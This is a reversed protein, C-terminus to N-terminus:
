PQSALPDDDPEDELYQFVQVRCNYTDAVWIRNKSDICLGAPLWFEGERVGESGFAMLVQGAADFVQVNEFRADVVYVHGAQDVAVGKPLALNGPGDGPSGIVGLRNGELDLRVVRASLSDSVLLGVGKDYALHTPSGLMLGPPGFVAAQHGQADYVHISRDALDSVYLRGTQEVYVLGAPRGLPDRDFRQVGTGPSWSYIAGAAADAIFLRGGGWCVASPLELTDARLLEYRRRPIDFRHVARADSDLVFVVDGEGVAVGVPAVLRNAAEQGVLRQWANTTNDVDRSSRIAGVFAIRPRAPPPPWRRAGPAVELSLPAQELGTCGGGCLLVSALAIRSSRRRRPRHFPRPPAAPALYGQAFRDKTERPM